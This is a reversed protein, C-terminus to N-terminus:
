PGNVKCNKFFRIEAMGHLPPSKAKLAAVCPADNARMAPTEDGAMSTAVCPPPLAAPPFNEPHWTQSPCGPIATAAAINQGPLQSTQALAASTLALLALLAKM